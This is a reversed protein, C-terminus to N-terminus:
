RLLYGGGQDGWHGFDADDDGVIIVIAEEGLADLGDEIL